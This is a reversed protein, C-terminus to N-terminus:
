AQVTESSTELPFDVEPHRLIRNRRSARKKQKYKALRVKRSPWPLHLAVALQALPVEYAKGSKPNSTMHFSGCECRYLDRQFVVAWRLATGRYRTARKDPRPCRRPPAFCHVAAWQAQFVCHESSCFYTWPSKAISVGCWLCHPARLLEKRV